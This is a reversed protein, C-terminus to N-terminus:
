EIDSGVSVIRMELLIIHSLMSVVNMGNNM